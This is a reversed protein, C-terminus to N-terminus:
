PARTGWGVGDITVADDATVVLEQLPSPVPFEQPEFCLWGTGPDGVGFRLVQVQGQPMHPSARPPALTDFGVGAVFRARLQISSSDADRVILLGQGVTYGSALHLCSRVIPRDEAPRRVGVPATFTHARGPGISVPEQPMWESPDKSYACGAPAALVLLALARRIQSTLVPRGVVRKRPPTTWGGSDHPSPCRVSKRRCGTGAPAAM